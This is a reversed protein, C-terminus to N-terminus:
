PRSKKQANEMRTRREGHYALFADMTRNVVLDDPFGTRALLELSPAVDGVMTDFHADSSVAVRVRHEACLRAIEEMRPLSGRRIRLSNNNIEIIKREQAAAAVVEELRCEARLDDIHGLMDVAPNKLAAVFAATNNDVSAVDMCEVHISAITWQSYFLMSQAIDLSGDAGMINAEVGRFIRLGELEDPLLRVATYTLFDPAAPNLAHGHETLCLGSLGRAFGAAANERLTSWAHGSLVTHTHTDVAIGTLM